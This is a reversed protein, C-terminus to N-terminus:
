LKEYQALNASNKRVFKVTKNLGYKGDRYAQFFMRGVSIHSGDTTKEWESETFLDKLTFIEGSSKKQIASIVQDLTLISQKYNPVASSILFDSITMKKLEALQAIETYMSESMKITVQKITISM